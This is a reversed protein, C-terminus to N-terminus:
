NKELDENKESRTTSIQFPKDDWWVSKEDRGLNLRQMLVISKKPSDQTQTICINNKIKIETQQITITYKQLKQEATPAKDKSDQEVACKV